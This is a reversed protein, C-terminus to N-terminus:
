RSVAASSWHIHVIKWATGDRRLVMTEATMQDIARGKYSGTMRGESAIWALEGASGGSRRAVASEVAQSFAADAPLHHAAYEAKSREAGGEEFILADEALVAAAAQTDGRRLAAHFADVTEAAGRASPSLTPAAPASPAGDHAALPATWCLLAAVAAWYANAGKM